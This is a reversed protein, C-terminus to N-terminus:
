LRPPPRLTARPHQSSVSAFKRVSRKRKSKAHHDASAANPKRDPDCWTTQRTVRHWWYTRGNPALERCWPSGGDNLGSSSDTEKEGTEAKRVHHVQEAKTRAEASPETSAEPRVRSSSSSHQSAFLPNVQSEEELLDVSGDSAHGDTIHATVM